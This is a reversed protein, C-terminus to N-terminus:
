WFDGMSLAKYGVLDSPIVLLGGYIRVTGLHLHSDNEIHSFLNGVTGWLYRFDGM